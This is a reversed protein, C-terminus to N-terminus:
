CNDGGVGVTLLTLDIIVIVMVVVEGGETTLILDQEKM